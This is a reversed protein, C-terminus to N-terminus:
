STFQPRQFLSVFASRVPDYNFQVRLNPFTVAACDFWNSKFIINWLKRNQKLHFKAAWEKRKREPGREREKNDDMGNEEKRLREREREEKRQPAM